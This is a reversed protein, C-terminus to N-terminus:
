KKITTQIAIRRHGVDTCRTDTTVQIRITDSSLAGPYRKSCKGDIICPSYINIQGCPGHIMNKTVVQFLEPDSIEDPIEASIINDIQDPTIKRVLWILIHAHPLGRKQWVISYM